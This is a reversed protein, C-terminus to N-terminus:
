NIMEDRNDYLVTNETNGVDNLIRGRGQFHNDHVFVDSVKQGLRIMERASNESPLFSNYSIIHNSAKQNTAYTSEIFIDAYERGAAGSDEFVNHRIFNFKRADIHIGYEECSFRNSDINLHPEIGQSSCAIGVRTREFENGCFDGGEGNIADYLIGTDLNSFVSEVVRPTYTGSVDIGRGAPRDVAYEIRTHQVLPRWQGYLNLGTSFYDGSANGDITISDCIFSRHHLNGGEPFVFSFASNISPRCARLTMKEMSIQSSKNRSDFLFLGTENHCELITERASTGVLRLLIPDDKMQSVTLTCVADFRYRGEPFYLVVDETEGSYIQDLMQQIAASSDTAGTPDAGFDTASLYASFCEDPTELDFVPYYETKSCSVLLLLCFITHRSILNM